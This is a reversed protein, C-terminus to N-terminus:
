SARPSGASSTAAAMTEWNWITLTSVGALLAYDAQSLGTKRRQARLSRVSFRAGEALKQPAARGLRKQERKELFAVKKALTKNERKLAAIDRKHQAVTKQTANLAARVERRALRSIEQKLIAALNPM